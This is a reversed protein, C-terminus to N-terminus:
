RQSRELEKPETSLTRRAILSVTWGHWKKNERTPIKLDNLQRAISCCSKKLKRLALIKRVVHIEKPHVVLNGDLFAFGYPPISSMEYNTRARKGERTHFSPRLRIGNELLTSRLTTKPIGTEASVQRLSLGREYFKAAKM